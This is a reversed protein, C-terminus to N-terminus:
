PGNTRVKVGFDHDLRLTNFADVADNALHHSITLDKGTFSPCQFDNVQGNGFSLFFPSNGDMM